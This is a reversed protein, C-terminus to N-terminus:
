AINKQLIKFKSRHFFSGLFDQDKQRGKGALFYINFLRIFKETKAVILFMNEINLHLSWHILTGCVHELSDKIIADWSRTLVEVQFIM